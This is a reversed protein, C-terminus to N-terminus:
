AAWRFGAQSTWGIAAETESLWEGPGRSPTLPTSPLKPTDPDIPTPWEIHDEGDDAEGFEEGQEITEMEFVAPAQEAPFANDPVPDGALSQLSSTESINEGAGSSQQASALAPQIAQVLQVLQPLLQV